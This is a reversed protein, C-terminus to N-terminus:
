DLNRIHQCCHRCLFLASLMSPLSCCFTCHAPCVDPRLLLLLFAKGSASTDVILSNPIYSKKLFDGFKELDADVGESELAQEWNDLDIGAENMVMKRSTSIGMVRLDIGKEKLLEAQIM